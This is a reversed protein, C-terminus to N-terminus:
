LVDFRAFVITTFNDYFIFATVFFHVTIWRISSKGITSHLLDVTIAATIRAGCFVFRTVRLLCGDGFRVMRDTGSVLRVDNSSRCVRRVLFHYVFSV